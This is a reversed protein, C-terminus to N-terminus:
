SSLRLRRRVGLRGHGAGALRECAFSDIYVKYSTSSFINELFSEGANCSTVPPISSQGRLAASLRSQSGAIAVYSRVHFLALRCYADLRRQPGYLGDPHLRRPASAAGRGPEPMCINVWAQQRKPSPAGNSAPLSMHSMRKLYTSFRPCHRTQARLEFSSATSLLSEGGRPAHTSPSVVWVWRSM